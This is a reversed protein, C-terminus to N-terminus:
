PSKLMWCASFGTCVGTRWLTAVSIKHTKYWLTSSHSWCYFNCSFEDLLMRVEFFCKKRVRLRAWLQRLCYNWVVGLDCIMWLLTFKAIFIVPLWTLILWFSFHYSCYLRIIIYVLNPTVLLSISFVCPTVPRPKQSQFNKGSLKLKLRVM